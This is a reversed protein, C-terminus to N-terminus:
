IPWSTQNGCGENRIQINETSMIKIDYDDHVERSSNVAPHLSQVLAIAGSHVAFNL